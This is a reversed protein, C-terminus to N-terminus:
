FGPSFANSTLDGLVKHWLHGPNREVASVTEKMKALVPPADDDYVDGQLLGIVDLRYRPDRVFATFLVNLRYYVSIFEHWNKTGRRIKARYDEFAQASFDGSELSGLIDASAFRGSNLAISVGTSFIPDVFRAADGVLLLRDDVIKKMGYSYDGEAKLPRLQTAPKLAELFEPRSAICDWFFDERNSKSTKFNKKQTVVGISTIDDTIPIQWVWTNTLPLFHIFIFETKKPDDAVATRDYGEFWTHLAYQDFVPDMVKWKMQNGLMTRRGSADVVIRCSTSCNRRGMSYNVRAFDDDPFEAGQVNIGEYVASGLDNAHKLLALDFKSRDVHYTYPLNVGPQDRESFELDVFCDASLGDFDHGFTQGASSTWAAGYKRPFRHEEMTKIFGLENFVRTSSPVLSEGVHPRPFLEREFVVCSAGAKALYAATAAGAPGGGIIGVDFDPEGAM